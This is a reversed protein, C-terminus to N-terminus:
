RIASHPPGDHFGLVESDVSVPCSWDTDANQLRRQVYRENAERRRGETATKRLKRISRGLARLEPRLWSCITANQAKVRIAKRELGEIRKKFVSRRIWQKAVTRGELIRVVAGIEEALAASKGKAIEHEGM